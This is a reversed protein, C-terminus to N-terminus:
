PQLVARGAVEGRQLAARTENVQALPVVRDIVQRLKGSSALAVADLLDQQTSGVSALIQLEGIM